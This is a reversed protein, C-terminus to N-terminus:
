RKFYKKYGQRTIKLNNYFAAFTASRLDGEVIARDIAAHLEKLSISEPRKENLKDLFAQDANFFHESYDLNKIALEQLWLAFIEKLLNSELKM